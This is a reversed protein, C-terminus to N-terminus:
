VLGGCLCAKRVGEKEIGDEGNGDAPHVQEGFGIRFDDFGVVVKIVSRVVM